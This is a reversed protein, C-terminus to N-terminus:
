GIKLHFSIIVIVIIICYHYLTSDSIKNLFILPQFGKPFIKFYCYHIIFKLM